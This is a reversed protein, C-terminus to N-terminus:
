DSPAPPAATAVIASWRDADGGPEVPPPMREVAGTLAVIPHRPDNIGIAAAPVPPVLGQFDAPSVVDRFPSRLFRTM